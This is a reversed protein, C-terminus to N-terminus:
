KVKEYVSFSSKKLSEDIQLLPETHGLFLHGGLTLHDSLKSVVFNTTSEDFYILVNRCFIVDFKHKFPYPESTLNHLAFRINQRHVEKVQVYGEAANDFFKSINIAPKIKALNQLESSKYVGKKAFRLPKPDIDTALMRLKVSEQDIIEKVNMYITYAEQGTSCAACWIRIEPNGTLKKKSILKPLLTNLYDFHKSERFFHTTNTTMISVFRDSITKNKLDLLRVLDSITGFNSECILQNIRNQFLAKNKDDNILHIGTMRKLHGALSSFENDSLPSSINKQVM